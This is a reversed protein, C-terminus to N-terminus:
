VDSGLEFPLRGAIDDQVFPATFRPRGRTAIRSTRALCQSLRALEKRGIIQAQIRTLDMAVSVALVLLAAVLPIWGHVIQDFRSEDVPHRM